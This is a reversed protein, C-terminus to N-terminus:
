LEDPSFAPADAILRTAAQAPTQVVTETDRDREDKGVVYGVVAAPVLLAVFLLWIGITLFWDAFRRM